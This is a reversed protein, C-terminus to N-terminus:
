LGQCINELEELLKRNERKTRVAVRIYTSDLGRFNSCDRVMIGSSALSLIMERANEHRILYFNVASPIYTIGLASFGEELVGKEKEMIKFTQGKYGSDNLATIGAIQAMTNVTWPEKHKKLTDIITEPFVGYGIRLGALAYFKTMSRLVILYPNNQVEKVVSEGPVFDIFAEDVVLYCKLERATEAIKLVGDKNMLRGTPNNPNCLFVMDWPRTVLTSIFENPDMDFNDEERLRFSAVRLGYGATRCAREYESFTPVPILVREPKIARVILYILETSGNGCIILGPEIDLHRAIEQRLLEADPDPYHCLYKVDETIRRIVSEPVGLLNISASFDIVNDMLLDRQKAFRYINGGHPELGKEDRRM